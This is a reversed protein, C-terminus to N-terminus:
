SYQPKLKLYDENKGITAVRNTIRKLIDKNREDINIKHRFKKLIGKVNLKEERILDCVEKESILNADSSGSSTPTYTTLSTAFRVKPKGTAAFATSTKTATPKTKSITSSRTVPTEKEEDSEDIDTSSAYPDSENDSDYVDNNELTKMLKKLNKGEATLKNKRKKGGGFGDDSTASFFRRRASVIDRHDYDQNQLDIIEEEDDEFVEEYDMEEFEDDDFRHHRSKPERDDDYSGFLPEVKDEVTKLSPKKDYIGGEKEVLEKGKGKEISRKMSLIENERNKNLFQIPADKFEDPKIRKKFVFWRDLLKLEAYKKGKEDVKHNIAGYRFPELSSEQAVWTNTGDAAELVLPPGYDDMSKRTAKDILPPVLPIVRQKSIKKTLRAGGYPAILSLDVGDRTPLKTTSSSSSATSYKTALLSSVRPSNSSPFFARRKSTAKIYDDMTRPNKHTLKVPQAFTKLDVKGRGSLKMLNFEKKPDEVTFKLPITEALKYNPKTPVDKANPPGRISDILEKLKQSVKLPIRPPRSPRRPQTQPKQAPKQAPKQSPLM